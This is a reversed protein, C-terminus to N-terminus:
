LTADQDFGTVQHPVPCDEQIRERVWDRQRFFDAPAPPIGPTFQAKGVKAISGVGGNLLYM